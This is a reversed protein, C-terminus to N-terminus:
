DGSTPKRPGPMLPLIMNGSIEIVPLSILAPVSIAKAELPFDSRSLEEQDGSTPRRHGFMPPLTMNGSIEGSPVLVPVSIAKVASLFDSQGRKQQEESTPKRHGLMLPLTSNTCAGKIDPRCRVRVVGIR